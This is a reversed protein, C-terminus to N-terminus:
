DEDAEDAGEPGHGEPTTTPRRVGDLPASPDPAALGSPAQSSRARQADPDGLHAAAAGHHYVLEGGGHGTVVAAWTVVGGAVLTAAALPLRARTRGALASATALGAGIFSLVLLREAAEEHRAVPGAGTIAAVKDADDEGTEMALFASGALLAWVAAVLWSVPSAEHGRALRLVLWLGVVPAFVALVIPFHVVVPHLPLATPM